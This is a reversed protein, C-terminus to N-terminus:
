ADYNVSPDTIVDSLGFLSHTFGPFFNDFSQTTGSLGSPLNAKSAIFLNENVAEVVHNPGAAVVTDPPTLGQTSDYALGYFGVGSISPQTRDELRELTLWMKRISRRQRALGQGDRKRSRSLFSFPVSRAHIMM